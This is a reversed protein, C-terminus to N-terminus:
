KIEGRFDCIVNAMGEDISKYGDDILKQIEHPSIMYFTKNGKRVWHIAIYPHCNFFCAIDYPKPMRDMDSIKYTHINDNAQILTPIQHPRFGSKFNIPKDDVGVKVEIPFSKKFHNKANYNLWKILESTFKQEYKKM